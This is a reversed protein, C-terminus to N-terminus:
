RKFLELLREADKSSVNRVTMSGTKNKVTISTGKRMRLWNEIGRAIALAAGSAVIASITAGLDMTSSDPKKREVIINPDSARIATVLEQAYQDARAPSLNEFSIEYETSSL